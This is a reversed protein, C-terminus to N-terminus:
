QRPIIEQWNPLALASINILISQSVNTGDQGLCQMTYTIQPPPLPVIIQNGNLAKSGNWASQNPVSSATCSTTYTSSWTLTISQGQYISTKDASFSLTPPCSPTNVTLTNSNNVGNSNHADIKYLYSNNPNVTTDTYNLATYPNYPTIDTWSIDSPIKRHITYYDAGPASDWLISVSNCTAPSGLNLKFNGPPGPTVWKALYHSTGSGRVNSSAAGANWLKHFDFNLALFAIVIAFVFTSWRLIKNNQNNEEM